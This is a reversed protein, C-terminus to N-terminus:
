CTEVSTIATVSLCDVDGNQAGRAMGPEIMFIKMTGPAKMPTNPVTGRRALPPQRCSLRLVTTGM